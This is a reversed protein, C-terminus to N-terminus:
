EAEVLDEEFLLMAPLSTAFYEIRPTEQELESSRNLIQEFLDGAIADEGLSKYALATWYTMDSINMVSM